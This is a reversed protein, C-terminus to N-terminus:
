KKSNGLHKIHCNKTGLLAPRLSKEKKKVTLLVLIIGVVVPQCACCERVNCAKSIMKRTSKSRIVGFVALRIAADNTQFSKNSRSMLKSM